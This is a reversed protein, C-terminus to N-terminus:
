LNWFSYFESFEGKVRLVSLSLFLSPSLSISLSVSLSPPVSPRLSLSLSLSLLSWMKHLSSFVSYSCLDLVTM